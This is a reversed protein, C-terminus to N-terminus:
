TLLRVFGEQAFHRDTTLADTISLERMLVFSVADCLSYRKDLRQHLLALAQDHRQRDIWIFRVVPYVALKEVFELTLARPVGRVTALAILEAAVYNHTVKPGPQLLASKAAAHNAEARHLAALLGSTDLLM